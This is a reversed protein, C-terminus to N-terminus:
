EDGKLYREDGTELYKIYRDPFVLTVRELITMYSKLTQLREGPPSKNIIENRKLYIAIFYIISIGIIVLSVVRGNFDSIQFLTAGGIIIGMFAPFHLFFLYVPAHYAVTWRIIRLISANMIYFLIVVVIIDSKTHGNLAGSHIMGGSFLITLLISIILEEIFGGWTNGLHKM